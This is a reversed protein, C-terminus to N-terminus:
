LEHNGRKEIQIPTTSVKGNVDITSTWSFKFPSSEPNEYKIHIDGTEVDKTLSFNLASHETAIYGHGALAMQPALASQSLAFFVSNAQVPHVKANCVNTVKDAIAVNQPDNTQGCTKSTFTQGDISFRFVSSKEDTVPKGNYTPPQARNVDGLFQDRGGDTLGSAHDLGASISSVGEALPITRQEMVAKHCEQISAGTDNIMNQLNRSKKALLMAQLHTKEKLEEDKGSIAESEKNLADTLEGDFEEFDIIRDKIERNTNRADLGIGKLDSFLANFATARNLKGSYVLEAAKPFNALTRSLLANGLFRVVSSHKKAGEAMRVFENFQLSMGQRDLANILESM